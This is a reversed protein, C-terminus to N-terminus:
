RAMGIYILLGSSCFFSKKVGLFTLNISKIPERIPNVGVGREPRTPGPRRGSGISRSTNSGIHQLRFLNKM